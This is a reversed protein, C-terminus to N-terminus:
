MSEPKERCIAHGHYPATHIVFTMVCYYDGTTKTGWVLVPSGDPTNDFSYAILDGADRGDRPVDNDCYIESKVSSWSLPNPIPLLLNAYTEVMVGPDCANFATCTVTVTTQGAPTSTPNYGNGAYDDACNAGSDCSAGNFPNDASGDIAGVTWDGECVLPEDAPPPTPCDTGTGTKEVWVTFTGVSVAAQVDVSSGLVFAAINAADTGPDGTITPIDALNVAPGAEAGIFIIIQDDFWRTGFVSDNMCGEWSAENPDDCNTKEDKCEGLVGQSAATDPLEDDNDGINTCNSDHDRDNCIDVTFGCPPSTVATCTQGDNTVDVNIQQPGTWASDGFTAAGAANIDGPAGECQLPISTSDTQCFGIGVSVVSKITLSAPGAIVECQINAGENDRGGGGDGDCIGDNTGSAGVLPTCALMLAALPLLLKNPNM